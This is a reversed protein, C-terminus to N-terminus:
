GVEQQRLFPIWFPNPEEGRRTRGIRTQETMKAPVFVIYFGNITRWNRPINHSPIPPPNTSSDFSPRYNNGGRPSLTASAPSRWLALSPQRTEVWTLQGLPVKGSARNVKPNAAEDRHGSRDPQHGRHYQHCEWIEIFPGGPSFEYGPIRLYLTVSEAPVGAFHFAGDEGLAFRQADLLDKLSLTIQSRAPIPQGDTLVVRGGVKSTPELNLDQFRDYLDLLL